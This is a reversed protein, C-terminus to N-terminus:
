KQEKLNKKWQMVWKLIDSDPHYEAEDSLSEIENEGIAMFRDRDWHYTTRSIYNDIFDELHCTMPHDTLLYCLLNWGPVFTHLLEKTLKSDMIFAKWCHLHLVYVPIKKKMPLYWTMYREYRRKYKGRRTQVWRVFLYFDPRMIYWPVKIPCKGKGDLILWAILGMVFPDRTMGRQCRYRKRWPIIPRWDKRSAWRNYRTLIKDVYEIFLNPADVNRSLGDPWRKRENLLYIGNRLLDRDGTIIAVIFTLFLCDGKGYQDGHYLQVSWSKAPHLIVGMLRFYFEVKM